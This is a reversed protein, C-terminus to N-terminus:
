RSTKKRHWSFVVAVILVALMIGLADIAVDRMHAGRYPTFFQHLEDLAAYMLSWGAAVFLIKKTSEKQFWFSFVQASIILLVAYEVVHAGKRELFYSWSTNAPWPSGPRHSFFFIVAMWLIWLLVWLRQNRFLEKIAARM